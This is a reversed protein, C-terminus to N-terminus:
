YGIEALDDALNLMDNHFLIPSRSYDTITRDPLPGIPSGDEDFKSVFWRLMYSVASM